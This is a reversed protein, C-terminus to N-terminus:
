NATKASGSIPQPKEANRIATREDRANKDMLYQHDLEKKIAELKHNLHAKWGMLALFGLSIVGFTFVVGLVVSEDKWDYKHFLCLIVGIFVYSGILGIIEGWSTRNDNKESM